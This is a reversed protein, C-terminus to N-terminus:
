QRRATPDPKHTTQPSPPLTFLPPHRSSSQSGDPNACDTARDSRSCQAVERCSSSQMSLRNQYRKTNPSPTKTEHMQNGTQTARQRHHDDQDAQQCAQADCGGLRVSGYEGPPPRDDSGERLQRFGRCIRWCRLLYEVKRVRVLVSWWVTLNRLALGPCGTMASPFM